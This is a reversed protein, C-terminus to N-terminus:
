RLPLSDMAAVGTLPDGKGAQLRQESTMAPNRGAMGIIHPEASKKTTMVPVPGTIVDLPIL